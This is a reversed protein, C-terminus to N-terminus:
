DSAKFSSLDCYDRWASIKGNRMEFIGMTTLSSFPAGKADHFRDVRETVVINGSEIINLTEVSM